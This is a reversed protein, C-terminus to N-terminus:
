IDFEFGFNYQYFLYYAYSTSFKNLVYSNQVQKSKISTIFDKLYNSPYESRMEKIALEDGLQNRLFVAEFRQDRQKRYYSEKINNLPISPQYDRIVWEDLIFFQNLPPIDIIDRLDDDQIM